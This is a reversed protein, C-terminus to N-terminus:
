SVAQFQANDILPGSLAAFNLSITLLLEPLYLRFFTVPTSNGVIFLSELLTDAEIMFLLESAIRNTRENNLQLEM